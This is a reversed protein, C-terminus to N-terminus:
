NFHKEGEGSSHQKAKKKKKKKSAKVTDASGSSAPLSQVPTCLIATASQSYSIPPQPLNSSSPIPIRLTTDADHSCLDKSIKLILPAPEVNPDVGLPIGADELAPKKANGSADQFLGSASSSAHDLMSTVHEFTAVPEEDDSIVPQVKRKKKHKQGRDKTASTKGSVVLPNSVSETKGHTILLSSSHVSSRSSHISGESHPKSSASKKREKEKRVSLLQAEKQVKKLNESTVENAVSGATSLIAFVDSESPVVKQKEEGYELDIVSTVKSRDQDKPASEANESGLTISHAHVYM